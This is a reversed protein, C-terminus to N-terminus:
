WSLYSWFERPQLNSTCLNDNGWPTLHGSQKEITVCTTVPTIDCCPQDCYIEVMFKRFGPFLYGIDNKAFLDLNFVFIKIFVVINNTYSAMM